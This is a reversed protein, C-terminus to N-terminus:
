SKTLRKVADEVLREIVMNKNKLETQLTRYITLAGANDGTTELLNAHIYERNLSVTKDTADEGDDLWLYTKWADDKPVALLSESLTQTNNLV